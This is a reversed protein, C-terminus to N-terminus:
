HSIRRVIWDAIAQIINVLILLIVATVFTIDNRFGNYGYQIAFDGLGGAGVAGAMASFSILSVMSISLGQIIGPMGEPIIVRLIIALPSSGMAEAAEIVGNDIDLLAAEVQRAIFPIVGIVLPVIAGKVGITTSVLLRTFPILAMVLIIFPISRFVNIIKNLVYNIWYHELIHGKRTTLLIVGLALGIITAITFSIGVMILTDWFADVLDPFFRIVNPIYRELLKLM